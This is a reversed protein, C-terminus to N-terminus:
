KCIKLDYGISELEQKLPLYESETAPESDQNVWEINVATHQGLHAYGTLMSNGYMNKNYKLQPFVATIDWNFKKDKHKRFKVLTAM